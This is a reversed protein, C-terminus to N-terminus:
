TEISHAFLLIEAYPGGGGAEGRNTERWDLLAEHVADDSDIWIFDGDEDRYRLRVTGSAISANTFRALKADIRDTLSRFQINSPIIMSVYNEDFRVKARLQSPMFSNRNGHSDTSSSPTSLPPSLQREAPAISLASMGPALKRDMPPGYAPDYIYQSSQSPGRSGPPQSYHQQSSHGNRILGNQSPSNNHSRSPPGMNKVHAPIPPVSPASDTSTYKRAQQQLLPNIDPSSASRMRNRTATEQSSQSTGPALAPRMGPGRGNVLYPNGNATTGSINRAMAPATNRYSEEHYAMGHVPTAGRHFGAFASQSSSRASASASEPPERDVPSFYSNSAYENPSQTTTKTNLSPLNGLESPFRHGRGMSTHATSGSNGSGGTASRQRLSNSSTNRSMSFESYNYDTGGYTTGSMRSFDEEEQEQQELYPNQMQANALMVFNTASTGNQKALSVCHARQEEIKDSWRRMTDDNKFKIIFSETAPDGKWVIQIVYNGPGSSSVNDTVNALYIRGKLHMRPKGRLSLPLKEKGGMIKNKNKNMNAEKCMILIRAFLFIHYEKEQDRIGGDKLVNFTGFLLLEGFDSLTLGKWDDVRDELDRLADERTEKDISANAMHLVEQIINIADTLDDKLVPDQVQDRLDKLLMPYKTMRQFPKLLFGNLITSNALMQHMLDSKAAKVMKDWERGCTEECRRQNAIFPEYQQFQEKYHIFLDGWNQQEEPVQSRQEIRILFRQAFDVLNNLNLFIAHIADGTLAGLEELEKKLAQLNLLHQVYHRETEVLEKLIHQRRTMKEPVGNGNLGTQDERLDENSRGLKGSMNLLDLVRNITKTVKVFGTTNDSYLDTITFTDSAPINMQKMCANIFLFAAQKGIKSKPKDMDVQLDGEEPQSANYIALLPLGSRFCRWLSSVPDTPGDAEQDEMEDLYPRFGPVDSLRRRLKLCIQFLSEGERVNIINNKDMIPASAHDGNPMQPNALM